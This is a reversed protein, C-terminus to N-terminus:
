SIKGQYYVSLRPLSYCLLYFLVYAFDFMVLNLMLKHFVATMKQRSLTLIAYGNLVLGALALICCAVGDIYFSVFDM